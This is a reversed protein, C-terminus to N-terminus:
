RNMANEMEHLSTNTHEVSRCALFYWEMFLTFVEIISFDYLGVLCFVLVQMIARHEFGAYNANSVFYGGRASGPIRFGPYRCKDRIHFLRQDLQALSTLPVMQRIMDVLM